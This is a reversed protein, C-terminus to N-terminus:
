NELLDRMISEMEPTDWEIAGVLRALIMGEQDILYSTPISGTQYSRDISNDDDFLIPFTYGSERAYETVNKLSDNSGLSSAALITFGDDKLKTYLEEMSPMEARCPPCWTAWLNFLVLKGKQESLRIDNGDIDSIQFDPAKFPERPLQFGIAGLRKEMETYEREAEQAGISLIGILLFGIAIAFKRM